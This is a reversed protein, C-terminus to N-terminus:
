QEYQGLERRAKKKRARNLRKHKGKRKQHSYRLKPPPYKDHRGCCGSDKKDVGYAKM